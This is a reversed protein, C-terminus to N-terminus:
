ASLFCFLITETATDSSPTTGTASPLYQALRLKWTRTTAFTAFATNGKKDWEARQCLIEEKPSDSFIKGRSKKDKKAAACCM